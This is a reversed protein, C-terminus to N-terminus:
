SAKSSLTVSMGADLHLTSASLTRADRGKGSIKDSGGKGDRLFYHAIYGHIFSFLVFNNHLNM